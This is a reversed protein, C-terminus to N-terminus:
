SKCRGAALNDTSLKNLYGTSHKSRFIVATVGDQMKQLSWFDESNLEKDTFHGSTKLNWDCAIFLNGITTDSVRLNEYVVITRKVTGTVM